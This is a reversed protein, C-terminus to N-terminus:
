GGISDPLWLDTRTDGSSDGPSPRGDPPWKRDVGEDEQARDGAWPGSGAKTPRRHLGDRSPLPSWGEAGGRGSEGQLSRLSWAMHTRPSRSPRRTTSSWVVRILVRKRRWGLSSRSPPRRRTRRTFCSLAVSNGRASWRTNWFVTALRSFKTPCRSTPDVWRVSRSPR